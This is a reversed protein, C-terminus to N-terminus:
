APKTSPQVTNETTKQNFVLWRVGGDSKVMM